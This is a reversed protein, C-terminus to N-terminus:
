AMIKKNLNFIERLNKVVFEGVQFLFYIYGYKM